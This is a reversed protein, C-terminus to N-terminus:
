RNNKLRHQNLPQLLMQQLWSPITIGLLYTFNGVLGWNLLEDLNFYSWRSLWVTILISVLTILSVMRLGSSSKVWALLQPLTLVLFILRYDWNNGVLIFTALYIAGGVRFSDLTSEGRQQEPNSEGQGGQFYPLGSTGRTLPSTLPSKPPDSQLSLLRTDTKIALLGSPITVALSAITGLLTRITEYTLVGQLGWGYLIKDPLLLRDGWVLSGYSIVTSRPTIADIQRIDGLIALAYILFLGLGVSIVPFFRSRRERVASILAVIPFLKLVAALLLVAYAGYRWTTRQRQMLWLALVLMMFVVVDCNGREVALMVSPSCLVVAYVVAEWVTLRGAMALITAFFGAGVLIGLSTTHSQNLGLWGLVLWIRPYNYDIAQSALCPNYTLVDYGLRDCDWAATIVRLDRFPTPLAPVGFWERWVQHNPILWSALVITLFYGLLIVVLVVRGDRGSRWGAIM